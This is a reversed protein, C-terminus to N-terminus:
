FSPYDFLYSFDDLNLLTSSTQYLTETMAELQNLCYCFVVKYLWFQVSLFHAERVMKHLIYLWSKKDSYRLIGFTLGRSYLGRRIYAGWIVLM